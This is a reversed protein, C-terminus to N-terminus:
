EPEARLCSVSKLSLGCGDYISVSRCGAGIRHLCRSVRFCKDFMLWVPVSQRWVLQYYGYLCAGTSEDSCTIVASDSARRM